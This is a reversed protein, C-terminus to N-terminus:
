SPVENTVRDFLPYWGGLGWWLALPANNPCNRHTVTLSGFGLGYRGFGLPRWFDEPAAISDRITVGAELFAAELASRGKETAFTSSAGGPTRPEFPFRHEQALYDAVPGNEPLQAPWLVDSTQRYWKRNELMRTQRFEIHIDKAAESAVQSLRRQVEYEGLAHNVQVVVYLRAKRPADERIWRALDGGVRSGTFLVDDLYVFVGGEPSQCDALSYGCEDQMLTGFEALLRAQSIGRTQLSLIGVSNWFEAAPKKSLNLVSRLFDTQAARSWYSNSLVHGMEQLILDQSPEPFQEVWREVHATDPAPLDDARYDAVTTCISQLLQEREGNAM